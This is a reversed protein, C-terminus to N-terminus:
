SKIKQIGIPMELSYTCTPAQREPNRKKETPTKSTPMAIDRLCQNGINGKAEGDFYHHKTEGPAMAVVSSPWLIDLLSQFRFLWNVMMPLGLISVHFCYGDSLWLFGHIM